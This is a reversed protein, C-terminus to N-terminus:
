LFVFDDDDYIMMYCIDVDVDYMVNCRVVDDDDVDGDDDGHLMMVFMMMMMAMMLMMLTWARVCACARVFVLVSAATRAGRRRDDRVAPRRAPHELPGSSDLPMVTYTITTHTFLICYCVLPVLFGGWTVRRAVGSHSARSM